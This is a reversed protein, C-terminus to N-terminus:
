DGDARGSECTRLTEIMMRHHHLLRVFDRHSPLINLVEIRRAISL